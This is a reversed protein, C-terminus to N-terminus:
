HRLDAGHKEHGVLTMIFALAFVSIATLAMATAYSTIQAYWAEIFVVLGAIVGASQYAFGPLLARVSSPSLEALHAPVVGWAGQVMLQMVMAGVILLTQNPATTRPSVSTIRM